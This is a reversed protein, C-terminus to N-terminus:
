VPGSSRGWSAYQSHLCVLLVKSSVEQDMIRCSRSLGQVAGLSHKGKNIFGCIIEDIIVGIPVGMHLNVLKNPVVAGGLNFKPIVHGQSLTSRHVVSPHVTNITGNVVTSM